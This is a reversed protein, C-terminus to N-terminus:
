GPKSRGTGQGRHGAMHDLSVSSSIDPKATGVSSLDQERREKGNNELRAVISHGKPLVQLIERKMEGLFVQM